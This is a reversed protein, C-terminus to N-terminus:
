RKWLTADINVYLQQATIKFVITEYFTSVQHIKQCLDTKFFFDVYPFEFVIRTLLFPVTQKIKYQFTLCKIKCSFRLSYIFECCDALIKFIVM